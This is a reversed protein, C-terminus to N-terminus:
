FPPEASDYLTLTLPIAAVALLTWAVARRPVAAQAALIAKISATVTVASPLVVILIAFMYIQITSRGSWGLPASLGMMFLAALLTALTAAGYVAWRWM